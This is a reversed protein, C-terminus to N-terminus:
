DLDGSDRYMERITKGITLQECMKQTVKERGATLAFTYTLVDRPSIHLWDGIEKSNLSGLNPYPGFREGTIANVIFIGQVTGLIQVNEFVAQLHPSLKAEGQSILISSEIESDKVKM